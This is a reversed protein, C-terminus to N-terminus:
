RGLDIDFTDQICTFADIIVPAQLCVKLEDSMDELPSSLDRELAQLRLLRHASQETMKITLDGLARGLFVSGCIVMVSLMLKLPDAYDRRLQAPLVQRTLKTELTM